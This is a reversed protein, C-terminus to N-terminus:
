AVESLVMQLIDAFDGFGRIDHHRCVARAGAPGWDSLSRRSSDGLSANDELKAERLARVVAFDLNEDALFRV